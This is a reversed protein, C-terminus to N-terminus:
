NKEKANSINGTRCDTDLINILFHKKVDLQQPKITKLEGTKKMKVIISHDSTVTVSKGDQLTIKFMKKKVKHKMIYLIRKDEVKFKESLSKSTDNNYIIKVFDKNFKDNKILNEEPVSDYYDEISIKKDNVYIMTDGTVSDTDMYEIYDFDTTKLVKNLYDNIVKSAYLISLQGSLTIAEAMENIYYIFYRNAVAGYLSNSLIKIAMQMNHHQIAMRQKEKLLIKLEENTLDKLNV